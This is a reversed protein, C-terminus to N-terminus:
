KVENKYEKGLTRRIHAKARKLCFQLDAIENHHFHKRHPNPEDVKIETWMPHPDGVWVTFRGAKFEASM